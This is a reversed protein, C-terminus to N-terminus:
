PARAIEVSSAKITVTLQNANAVNPLITINDLNIYPSRKKLEEYFKVLSSYDTNRMSIQASNVSFQTTRDTRADSITKNAIGSASAITDLESQLRVTDFTSAPDLQRIAAAAREQIAERSNIMVQQMRLTGTTSKYDDLLTNVRGAVSFVWYLAVMLVFAMLLIRERPLRSLFFTKM